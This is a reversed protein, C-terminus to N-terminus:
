LFILTTVILLPLLICCSYLMYGFFSPMRIGSKEAIAKVMFNPGNGIYTMSGMFVAGLSIAKLLTEAVGAVAPTGGLTKATEFFVVYTPANDLVSSLSGTLWFFHMPTDLGLHPGRVHLIQLPPQMCIFIGFFLAAVEIIAHYNFNNARRVPESGLILSLAVLGVQAIERLYLWPQWGALYTSVNPLVSDVYAWGAWDGGPLPKHPDLLAVSVVVGALLFVNPWVGSFKLGRVRTEDRAIDITEERPYFWFHDWLYYLAILVGNVFLWAPWLRFTWLFDVGRLYGLFLPPDGIPLLCGGCNCVVFIFIIVTHKVHRRERNTELLPRILLMAAGTTGIFSALLGGTAIFASNTLPHARLDGEIRIGGSITYLSFLLMIFPIYENLIGNELVTWGLGFNLGGESHEVLHHVPWHGEIPHEHLVLYYLLTLAGLIVAVLFRNRNSEWWHETAPILPLVAIAGLLLAFPLIMWYDPHTTVRGHAESEPQDDGPEAAHAAPQDDEVAGHRPGHAAEAIMKAGKQPAGALAAVIYASLVVAIGILLFQSSGESPHSDDMSSRTPQLALV